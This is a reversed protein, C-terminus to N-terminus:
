RICLFTAYFCSLFIYFDLIATINKLFIYLTFPKVYCVGSDLSEHVSVNM